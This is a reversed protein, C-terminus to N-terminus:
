WLQFRNNYRVNIERFYNLNWSFVSQIERAIPAKEPVLVFGWRCMSISWICVHAYTHTCKLSSYSFPLLLIRQMKLHSLVLFGGKRYDAAHLKQPFISSKLLLIFSTFSELLCYLSISFYLINFGHIYICLFLIYYTTM